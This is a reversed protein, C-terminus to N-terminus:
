CKCIIQITKRKRPHIFIDVNSFFNNNNHGIHDYTMIYVSTYMYLISAPNGPTARAKM